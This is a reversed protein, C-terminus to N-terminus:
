TNVASEQDGNEWSEIFRKGKKTLLVTYIHNDERSFVGIGPYAGSGDEQYQGRKSEVFGAAILASCQLVGDGSVYHCGLKKLAVLLNISQKDFGENLSLLLMKWARISEIPIIGRHHQAHCNPCLPLLNEPENGGDKSVEVIHHIDLTLITRCLPNACKYGAEHLILRKTDIPIAKRNKEM